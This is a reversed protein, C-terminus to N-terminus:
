SGIDMSRLSFRLSFFKLNGEREKRERGGSGKKSKKQKKM